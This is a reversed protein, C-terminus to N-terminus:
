WLFRFGIGIKDDLNDQKQYRLGLSLNRNISYNLSVESEVETERFRDEFRVDVNAEIYFRKTIQIAKEINFALTGETNVYSILEFNLPMMYFAGVMPRFKQEDLEVGGFVNFYRSFYRKVYVENESKEHDYETIEGEVQVEYRGGNFRIDWTAGNSYAGVEVGPYFKSDTAILNDLGEKIKKPEDEPRDFGVYRVVRGMGAKLHYLNHCHFFWQGPEDALFEITVSSMPVVDVTHKLPSFDGQGNLLRFFHGHLHMPHHMMTKNELVFRIVKGEEIDIYTDESLYKGNLFWAYREMDGGLVIKLETEPTGEPFNTPTKSKLQSYKLRMPMPKEGDIDSVSNNMNMRHRGHISADSGNDSGSHNMDGGGHSMGGMGMKYINPKPKNPAHEIDGHGLYASAYGQVGQSTARFEYSKNEPVTFMIDYTEGMGMLLEKAMVPQVDIGDAAVVMFNQKGLNVYFYSSAGANIIRIRVKDGQKLNQLANNEINGNILFADYGVDGFDMGGMRNWQNKLYAGLSDKSAADAFSPVTDKKWGYYDGDRKLKALVAQPHEDIWDSLVMVVEHDVPIMNTKPEIVIGGYVGRQEQLNMHSHYWYTGSQRLRFRYTFTEGPKIPPTNLYPVGDMNWPVLLGHWHISTDEDTSNKVHIVADEGEVFRLTPAPIGGNVTLAFDIPKGTINVTEKRLELDYEREREQAFSFQSFLVTILFFSIALFWSYVNKIEIYDKYDNMPGM